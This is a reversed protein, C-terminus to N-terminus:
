AHHVTWILRECCSRARRHDPRHAGRGGGDGPEVLHTRSGKGQRGRFNRNSTSACRKGAPVVDGNM